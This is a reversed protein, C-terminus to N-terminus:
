IHLKFTSLYFTIVKDDDYGENMIQIKRLQNARCEELRVSRETWAKVIEKLQELISVAHSKVAPNVDTQLLDFRSTSNCVMLANKFHSKLSTKVFYTTM